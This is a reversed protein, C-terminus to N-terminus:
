PPPKSCYGAGRTAANRGRTRLLPKLIDLSEKVRGLRALLRARLILDGRTTGENQEILAKSWSNASAYDGTNIAIDIALRQVEQDNGQIAMARKLYDLAARERGAEAKLEARDLLEELRPDTDQASVALPLLLPLALIRIFDM